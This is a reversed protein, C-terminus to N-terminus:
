DASIQHRSLSRRSWCRHPLYLSPMSKQWRPWKMAEKVTSVETQISDRYEYATKPMRPMRATQVWQVRRGKRAWSCCRKWLCALNLTPLEACCGFMWFVFTFSISSILKPSWCCFCCCFKEVEAEFLSMTRWAWVIAKMSMYVHILVNVKLFDLAKAPPIWSEFPVAPESYCLCVLCYLTCSPNEFAIIIPIPKWICLTKSFQYWGITSLEVYSRVHPACTHKQRLGKQSILPQPCSHCFTRKELTIGRSWLLESCCRVCIAFLSPNCVRVKCWKAEYTETSWM